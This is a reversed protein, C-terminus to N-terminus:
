TLKLNPKLEPFRVRDPITAGESLPYLGLHTM